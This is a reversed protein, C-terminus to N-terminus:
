DLRRTTPDLTDRLWDGLLNIAMVTVFITLGPFTSVWWQTSLYDRGDAVMSGWSPTPPRVGMGLYSLSAELIIMQAIDLTAIVIVSGIANPLIHRVLIRGNRTGVMRAAEIFEKERLSLTESRIVRAYLVWGTVGLVGIINGLGPGLVAMVALALILFPLTLQIDGLRMLLHDIWGGYFGSLLGLLVGGTARVLVATVGILLSIQAGYIIRSLIDRGLPDTGLLFSPDGGTQWAPPLLRKLLVQDAPDHPSVLPAFIASTVVLLVVLLSAVVVWNQALRTLRPPRQFVSKLEALSGAQEKGLELAM